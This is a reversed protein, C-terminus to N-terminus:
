LSSLIVSTVQRVPVEGKPGPITLNLGKMWDMGSSLVSEWEDVQCLTFQSLFYYYIILSCRHFFYGLLPTFNIDDNVNLMM